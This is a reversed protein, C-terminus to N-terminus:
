MIRTGLRDLFLPIPDVNESSIKMEANLSLCLGYGKFNRGVLWGFWFAFFYIWDNDRLQRVIWPPRTLRTCVKQM